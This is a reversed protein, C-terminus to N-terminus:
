VNKRDPDWIYKHAQIQMRADFVKDDIMWKVLTAPELKGFVPSFLVAKCRAALDMRLALDRAWEYDERGSIVFKVEDHPALLGANEPLNRDMEGSSPCKFDMIKRVQRPVRAICFAGSTELMVELGANLLANLLEICGEQALPEGGTVEVLPCGFAVARKVIDPITIQEGGERAHETDCYACNL